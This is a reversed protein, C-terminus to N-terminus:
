AITLKITTVPSRGTVPYGKGKRVKPPLEKITFIDKTPINNFM